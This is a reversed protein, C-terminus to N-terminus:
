PAPLITWESIRSYRSIAAHIATVRNGRAERAGIKREHLSNPGPADM